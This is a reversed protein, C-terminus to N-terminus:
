KPNPFDHSCVAHDSDHHAPLLMILHMKVRIVNCCNVTIVLGTWKQWGSMWNWLVEEMWTPGSCYLIGSRDGLIMCMVWCLPLTILDCKHLVYQMHCTCAPLCMRITDSIVYYSFYWSHFIDCVICFCTAISLLWQIFNQCTYKICPWVEAVM